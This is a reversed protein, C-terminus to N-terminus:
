ESTSPDRFRISPRFSKVRSSTSARRAPRPQGSGSATVLSTHQDDTRNDAPETQKTKENARQEDTLTDARNIAREHRALRLPGHDTRDQDTDADRQKRHRTEAVSASPSPRAACGGRGLGLM